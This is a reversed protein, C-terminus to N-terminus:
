RFHQSVTQTSPKRIIGRETIIASVLQHPTVDFAPNFVGAADPVTKKGGWYSVEERPRNEIPIGAGSALQLDFTSRPAAVYFAVNHYRALVALAYTGIKNAVDGNAAIRDAGVIVADIKKDRLVVGAMSDTVVTVEIGVRSLEFATIRAGQLLPRTEDAYVSLSHGQEAAHYVPSLATGWQATALSGANCHTLISHANKILEYGHKGIDRCTQIDEQEIDCATKFLIDKASKVSGAPSVAKLMRDLAWQLNVATPRSSALYTAKQKLTAMFQDISISQDDAQAVGLWLGYAAAIGIAPAGRVRLQYIAEYMQEISTIQLYELKEPLLTQDILVVDGNSKCTITQLPTM